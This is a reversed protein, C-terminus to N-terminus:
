RRRLRQYVQKRDDVAVVLVVLREDQVDYVIRFRGVRLKYERRGKLKATGPPRAEEALADIRQEVTKFDSATLRDLDRAAARTLEVRYRSM